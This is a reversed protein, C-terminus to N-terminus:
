IFEELSQLRSISIQEKSDLRSNFTFNFFSNQKEVPITQAVIELNKIFNTLENKKGTFIPVLMIVATLENIEMNVMIIGKRKDIITKKKSHQKLLDLVEM